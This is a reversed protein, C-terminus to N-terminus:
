RRKRGKGSIAIAQPSNSANSRVLVSGRYTRAKTPRFTVTVNRSAKPPIVGRYSGSFVPSPMRVQTVTMPGTGTNRIQLIKRSRSGITKTGFKLSGSLTLRPVLSPAATGSESFDSRLLVDDLGFVFPDGPEFPIGFDNGGLDIVSRGIPGTFRVQASEIQTQPLYEGEDVVLTQDIWADYANAAVSAPRGDPGTYPLAAASKNILVTVEVAGNFILDPLGGRDFLFRNEGDAVLTLLPKGALFRVLGSGELYGFGEELGPATSQVRCRFLLRDPRSGPPFLRVVQGTSPSSARQRTSPDQGNQYYTQWSGRLSFSLKGGSLSVSAIGPLRQEETFGIQVPPLDDADAATASIDYFRSTDSSGTDLLSPLDPALNFDQRLLLDAHVPGSVGLCILLVKPLFARTASTMGRSQSKLREFDVARQHFNQPRSLDSRRVSRTAATAFPASLARVEGADPSLGHCWAM